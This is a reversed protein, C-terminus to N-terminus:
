SILKFNKFEQAIKVLIRSNNIRLLKSLDEHLKENMTSYNQSINKFNEMTSYNQSSNKFNKM